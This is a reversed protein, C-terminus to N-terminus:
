SLATKCFDPCLVWATSFECPHTLLCSLRPILVSVGLFTEWLIAGPDETTTLLALDLDKAKVKQSRRLHTAEDGQVKTKEDWFHILSVRVRKPTPTSQIHCHMNFVTGWIGYFSLFHSSSDSDGGGDDDCLSPTVPWAVPFCVRLRLNPYLLASPPVEPFLVQFPTLSAPSPLRLSQFM